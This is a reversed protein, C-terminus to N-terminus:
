VSVICIYLLTLFCHAIIWWTLLRFKHQLLCLLFGSVFWCVWIVASWQYTVQTKYHWIGAVAGEAGFPYIEPHYFAQYFDEAFLFIGFICIGGWIAKVRNM